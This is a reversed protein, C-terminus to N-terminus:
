KRHHLMALIAAIGHNQPAQPQQGMGGLMGAMGGMQPGQQQMQQLFPIVMQNGQWYNAPVNMHADYQPASVMQPAGDRQSGNMM